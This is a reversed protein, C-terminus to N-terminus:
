FLGFVRWRMQAFEVALSFVQRTSLQETYTSGVCVAIFLLNTQGSGADKLAFVHSLLFLIAHNEERELLSIFYLQVSFPSNGEGARKTDPTWLMEVGRVIWSKKRKISKGRKYTRRYGDLTEDWVVVSEPQAGWTGEERRIREELLVRARKCVEASMKVATAKELQLRARIKSM